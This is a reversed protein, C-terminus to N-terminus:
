PNMTEEIVISVQEFLDGAHVIGIVRTWDGQYVPFRRYRSDAINALTQELTDNLDIYQLGARPMMLSAIRMDDLHLPRIVIDHKTKESMRADTGEKLVGTNEEETVTDKRPKHWGLLRLVFAITFSPNKVFPGIIKSM